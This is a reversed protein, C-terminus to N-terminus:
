IGAGVDVGLADAFGGAEAAADHERQRSLSLLQVNNLTMSEAKRQLIPQTIFVHGFAYSVAFVVVYGVIVIAMTTWDGAAGDFGKMRTMATFQEPSVLVYAVIAALAMVVLAVVITFITVALSGLVYVKIVQTPSIDCTFTVDGLSRHNWLYRFTVVEYRLAMVFLAFSGVGIIAMGIVATAPNYKDAAMGWSALGMMGFIIYLWVWQAFLGVWSGGQEFKLDGYWARDTAYKSLKFQAYPRLLGATLIAVTWYWMARWAYGWAGKGLGFRIGRWRTRALIYHRARYQAFFILPAAFLMSLPLAWPSGNLFSIEVYTLALNVLALYVALIVIAMLFGLLKEFGTGSYEFPDGQIRIAHWYHRRLSTTMWFRYIGLTLVTLGVARLVLWFLSPGDFSYIPRSRGTRHSDDLVLDRDRDWEVRYDPREKVGRYRELDWPKPGSTEDTM